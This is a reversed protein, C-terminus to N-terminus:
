DASRYGANPIPRYEPPPDLGLRGRVEALPLALMAPWDEALLYPARRARRRADIWTGLVDPRGTVAAILASLFTAISQSRYGVQQASFAVVGYEGAWDNDYGTVVHWLDHLDRFRDHLYAVEPSAGPAFGGSDARAERVKRALEEPRIERQELFDVLLRGVSGEPMSRLTARDTLPTLVDQRAELLRRGQASERMRSLMRRDGRGLWRALIDYVRIGELPDKSRGLLVTHFLRATEAFGPKRAAAVSEARPDAARSM